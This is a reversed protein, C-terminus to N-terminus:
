IGIYEWRIRLLGTLVILKVPQGASLHQYTQHTVQIEEPQRNFDTPAVTVYYSDSKGHAIRTSQVVTPYVHGATPRIRNIQISSGFGYFLFFLAAGLYIGPKRATSDVTLVFGTLLLAIVAPWLFIPAGPLLNFDVFSRAVLTLCPLFLASGISPYVSNKRTGFRVRGRSTWLVFLAVLPLLLLLATVLDYPRPYTFGWLGFVFGAINLYKVRTRAQEFTEVREDPTNGFNEDNMLEDVSNQTEEVDPNPIGDLWQFFVDDKDFHNSISMRRRKDKRMLLLADKVVRWEAIDERLITKTKLPGINELRDSYLVIRSYFTVRWLYWAAFLLAPTLVFPLVSHRCSEDTRVCFYVGVLGGLAIAFCVLFLIKYSRSPPYEAPLQGQISSLSDSQM